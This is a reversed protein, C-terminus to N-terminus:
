VNKTIFWVRIGNTERRTIPRLEPKHRNLYERANNSLSRGFDQAHKGEPIPILVSQGASMKDWPWKRANTGINEPIPINDEIQFELGTNSTDESM